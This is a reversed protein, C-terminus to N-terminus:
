LDEDRKKSEHRRGMQDNIELWYRYHRHCCFWTGEMYVAALSDKVPKKCFGCKENLAKM